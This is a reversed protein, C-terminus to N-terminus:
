WRAVGPMDNIELDCILGNRLSSNRSLHRNKSHHGNFRNLWAMILLTALDLIVEGDLDSQTCGEYV